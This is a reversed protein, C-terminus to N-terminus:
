SALSEDVVLSELSPCGFVIRMVDSEGLNRVDFLALHKLCQHSSLARIGAATVGGNKQGCCLALVELNPCNEALAVVTADSFGRVDNLRLERLSQIRSIAEGGVDTVGVRDFPRYPRYTLELHELCSMKVLHQIGADTIRECCEIILKMLTKSISGNALFGLGVDSIEYCSCLELSSISSSAIARFAQDSIIYNDFLCLRRLNRSSNLFANLGVDGVLYIGEFVLTALQPCWDGLARLGKPGLLGDKQIYSSKDTIVM